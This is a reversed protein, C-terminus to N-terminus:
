CKRLTTVSLFKCFELVWKQSIEMGIIKRTPSLEKMEFEGKLLVNVNDIKTKIKSAVLMNDVYISSSAMMWNRVTSVIIM